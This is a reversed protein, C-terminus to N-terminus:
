NWSYKRPILPPQHSSGVVKGCERALQRSIQFDSVEPVESGIILKYLSQKLKAKYLRIVIIENYDLLSTYYNKDEYLFDPGTQKIM